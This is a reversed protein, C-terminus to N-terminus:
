MQRLNFERKLSGIAGADTPIGNVDADPHNRAAEAFLNVRELERRVLNRETTFLAEDVTAGNRIEVPPAVVFDHIVAHHKGPHQRLIRGRRQVFQRPNSSSALMYATRTAPVDVGEDLCRIAV